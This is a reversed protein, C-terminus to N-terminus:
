PSSSPESNAMTGAARWVALDVNDAFFRGSGDVMSANVGGAHLSRASAFVNDGDNGGYGPHQPGNQRPDAGVPTRPRVCWQIPYETDGGQWPCAGKIEDPDPTNPTKYASFLAGAMNGYIASGIPGAWDPTTPVRGESFLMTNSTGDSIEKLQVAPSLETKPLKAVGLAGKWAGEPVPGDVVYLRNGYMDGAGTCGRYTTRYLDFDTRHLENPQPTNDSPCCFLPIQTLRAQRRRADNGHPGFNQNHIDDGGHGQGRFKREPLTWYLQYLAQQEIGPLISQTWTYADWIDFKRGFPLEGRSSEYTLAGLSLNKLNNLCQTRRAAERASQVAPLLLAVLVGIIAIVVLLEVLTFGRRRRTASLRTM